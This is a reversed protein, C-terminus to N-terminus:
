AKLNIKLVSSWGEQNALWLHGALLLKDLFLVFINYDTKEHFINPLQYPGTPVRHYNESIRPVRNEIRPDRFCRLFGAIDSGPLAYGSAVIGVTSHSVNRQQMVSWQTTRKPNIM